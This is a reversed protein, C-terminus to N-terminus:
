ELGNLARAVLEVGRGTSPAVKAHERNALANFVAEQGPTLRMARGAQNALLAQAIPSMMLRGAMRPAAIGAAFGAVTTMPDGGSAYGAGTGGILSTAGAGLAQAKLRGATGSNPMPQMIATGARSLEAFDGNGRAYNRRGQTMVTANRLQSPSIIGLAADAGGATAAREVTLLNRYQTRAERWLGADTPNNATISREMADDLSNRIGYLASQLQPDRASGRAMRDLRSRAAQYYEGRLPGQGLTRGIDRIMDEVVPARASEPVMAAYERYNAGLDQALQRDPILANRGALTDFDNGIRAFADDIVDPTARDATTGTRRLAASTFQEGQREYIHAARQGGIESEAYRLANNGTRQGATMDVGERALVDAAATREPNTLFPSVVRRAAASLGSVAVPLAAGVTAGGIGGYFAGEGREDPAADGAGQTTGLIAGDFGSAAAIRGASQGQTIARGAFSPANALMATGAVEGAASAVPNQARQADKTAEIGQRTAEYDGALGGATNLGAAAEDDWAMLPARQAGSAFADIGRAIPGLPNNEGAYIGSSFYNDRAAEAQAQRATPNNMDTSLGSLEGRLDKSMQSEPEPQGGIGIQRAIENATQDQEEPSMQLFSDDVRVRKGEINLVPM